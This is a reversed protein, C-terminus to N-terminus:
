GPGGFWWLDIGRCFLRSGKMLWCGLSFYIVLGISRFGGSIRYVFIGLQRSVSFVRM